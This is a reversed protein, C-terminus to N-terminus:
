REIVLTTTIRGFRMEQSRYASVAARPDRSEVLALVAESLLDDYLPDELTTLSSTRPGLLERAMDFMRHGVHKGSLPPIARSARKAYEATRDGRDHTLRYARRVAKQRERYEPHAVRWARFYAANAMTM